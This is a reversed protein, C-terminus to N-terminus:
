AKNAFREARAKKKAAEDPDEVGKPLATGFKKARAAMKEKEAESVETRQKKQAGKNSTSAPKATSSTSASSAPLLADGAFRKARLALKEKENMKVETGFREARSKKKQALAELDDADGGIKVTKSAPATADKSDGQTTSSTASSSESPTSASSSSSSTSSSSSEPAPTEETSSSSEAEQEAQVLRNVFDAKLKLGTCDIDRQELEKKIADKTMRNIETATLPM